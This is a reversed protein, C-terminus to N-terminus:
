SCIASSLQSRLGKRFVKKLEQAKEVSSKPGFQQCAFGCVGSKADLHWVSNMAGGWVLTGKGVGSDEYEDRGVLLGGLGFDCERGSTGMSLLMGLPGGLHKAHAQKAEPELQPRFMSNVTENQLLKGDNLLISQLVAIFSESTAYMGQGGFCDRVGDPGHVSMNLSAVSLLGLGNPDHPNVDPMRAGLGEKVPFFSLDTPSVGLPTLIHSRFYEDLRLGSIQEILHGAWDVGHGYMWGEGPQFAFPQSFRAHM